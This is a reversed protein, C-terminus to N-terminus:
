VPTPGDKGSLRSWCYWAIVANIAVGMVGTGHVVGPLHLIISLASLVLTLSFGWRRSAMVGFGGAVQIASVALIAFGVFALLGGGLGLGLKANGDNSAGGALVGFFGLVGGLGAVSLGCCIGLSSLIIIAIGWTKDKPYAGPGLEPRPYENQDM